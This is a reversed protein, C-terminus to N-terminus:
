DLPINGEELDLTRFYISQKSVFSARPQVALGQQKEGVSWDTSVFQSFQKGVSSGNAPSTPMNTMSTCTDRPPCPELVSGM